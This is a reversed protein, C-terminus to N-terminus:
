PRGCCSWRQCIIGYIQGITLVCISSGLGLLMGGLKADEQEWGNGHNTPLPACYCHDLLTAAAAVSLVNKWKTVRHTSKGRLLCIRQRAETATDTELRYNKNGVWTTPVRFWFSCCLWCTRSRMTKGSFVVGASPKWVLLLFLFLIHIARIQFTTDVEFFRKPNMLSHRLNHPRVIRNGYLWARLM